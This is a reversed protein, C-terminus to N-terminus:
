QLWHNAVWEFILVAILGCSIAFVVLFILFASEFWAPMESKQDLAKLLAAMKKEEPVGDLLHRLAEPDKKFSRIDSVAVELLREPTWAQGTPDLDYCNKDPQKFLRYEKGTADIMRDEPKWDQLPKGRHGLVEDLCEQDPFVNLKRKCGPEYSAFGHPLSGPKRREATRRTEGSQIATKMAPLKKLNIVVLLIGGVLAIYGCRMFKQNGAEDPGPLLVANDPHQPDYYVTVPSGVPYATAFASTRQNSDLADLDVSWPAIRHGIYEHNSVTYTYSVNVSYDTSHTSHHTERDCQMIKGPVGPWQLSPRDHHNAYFVYLFFAPGALVLCIFFICLLYYDSWTPLRRKRHVSFAM